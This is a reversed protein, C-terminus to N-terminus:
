KEPKVLEPQDKAGGFPVFRRVDVTIVSLVLVMVLAFGMGAVWNQVRFSLRRGRRLMEVFAVLMQGGDLPVIPLLNFIGLSMSLFGALKITPWVGERASAATAAVISAPGGVENEFRSPQRVMNALGAFMEFPLAAAEGLAQPLSRRVLHTTFAAGIRYQRAMEGTPKFEDDFVPAPKADLRPKVSFLIQDNGRQVLFSQPEGKSEQIRDAMERWTKVPRGDIALVRDDPKMGAQYAPMNSVLNGLVPENLPEDLGHIALVPVLVLWGAIISFVPGAFLVILRQWPPRAYFGGRVQVESGDEEPVMGKIRVFGGLPWPRITFDTTETDGEETRYTKRKWIWIPKKGFGIAFEEVGMKFLRAFLYHGLEHAAVLVTVITLFVLAVVILFPDFM